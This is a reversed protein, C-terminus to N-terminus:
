EALPGKNVEVFDEWNPYDDDDGMAEIAQDYAEGDFVAEVITDYIYERDDEDQQDAPVATGCATVTFKIRWDRAYKEVINLVDELVERYGTYDYNIYASGLPEGMYNIPWLSRNGEIGLDYNKIVVERGKYTM